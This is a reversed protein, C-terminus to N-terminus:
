RHAATAMLAEIDLAFRPSGASLMQPEGATILVDDEIRV